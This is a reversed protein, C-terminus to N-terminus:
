HEGQGVAFKKIYTRVPGGAMQTVTLTKGDASVQETDVSIKGNRNQTREVTHSDIVRYSITRPDGGTTQYPKGDFVVPHVESSSMGDKGITVRMSTYGDPAPTNVVFQTVGQYNTVNHLDIEWIGLFPKADQAKLSTCFALAVVLVALSKWSVTLRRPM